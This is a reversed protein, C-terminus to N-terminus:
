NYNSFEGDKLDSKLFPISTVVRPKNDCIFETPSQSSAKHIAQAPHASQSQQPRTDRPKYNTYKGEQIEAHIKHILTPENAPVAM